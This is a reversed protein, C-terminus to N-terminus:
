PAHHCTPVIKSVLEELTSRMTPQPLVGRGEGERMGMGPGMVTWGWPLSARALAFRIVPEGTTSKSLQLVRDRLEEIQVQAAKLQTKTERLEQLRGSSEELLAVPPPQTQQGFILPLVVFLGVAFLALLTLYRSPGAMHTLAHADM